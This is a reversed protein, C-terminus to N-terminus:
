CEICHETRPPFLCRKIIKSSSVEGEVGARPEFAGGEFGQFCQERSSRQSSSPDSQFSMDTEIFCRPVRM